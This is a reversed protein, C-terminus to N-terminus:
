AASVSVRHYGSAAEPLSDADKGSQVTEGAICRVKLLHTGTTPTWSFRWQTWSHASRPPELTARQWTAGDDTSVEVGTVQVRGAYAIGRVTTTQGAKLAELAQPADIRSLPQVYATRSWGRDAWYGPKEEATLTIKTLWRPQKMGYHGPLIVRLPFGHKANLPENNIHYALLVEDELAMNLPISEYFGDAAEWQIWRAGPQIGVKELLDKVKLGTWICNGILDGGIPNSICALTFEETAPKFDTKLRELTFKQPEKVLGGVELSWAAENIRPDLAENNISVYYLDAQSTVGDPLKPANSSTAAASSPQRAFLPQLAGIVGVGMVGAAGWGLTNLAARRSPDTRVPELVARFAFYVAGWVLGWLPGVLLVGVFAVLAAAPLPALLGALAVGGVWLASSGILAVVKGAQGFGLVSHIFQFVAPVGLFHTLEKYVAELPAPIGAWLRAALSVAALAVSSIFGVLLKRAVM